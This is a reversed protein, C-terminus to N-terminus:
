VYFGYAYTLITTKLLVDGTVEYLEFIYFVIIWIISLLSFPRIHLSFEKWFNEVGYKGLLVICISIILLLYDIFAVFFKKKTRNM